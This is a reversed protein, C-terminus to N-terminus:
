RLVPLFLWQQTGSSASCTTAQVGVNLFVPGADACRPGDQLVVAAITQGGGNVADRTTWTGANAAPGLLIPVDRGGHEWYGHSVRPFSLQTAQVVTLLDSCGTNTTVKPHPQASLDPAACVSTQFGVSRGVNVAHFGDLLQRKVSYQSVRCGTFGDVKLIEAPFGPKSAPPSIVIRTGPDVITEFSVFWTADAPLLFTFYPQTQGSEFLQVDAFADFTAGCQAGIAGFGGVYPTRGSSPDSPSNCQV